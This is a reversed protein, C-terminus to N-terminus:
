TRGLLAETEQLILQAAEDLKQKRKRSNQLRLELEANRTEFHELQSHLRELPCRRNRIHVMIDNLYDENIVRQWRIQRRLQQEDPLLERHSRSLEQNSEKTGWHHAEVDQKWADELAEKFTDKRVPNQRPSLKGQTKELSDAHKDLIDIRGFRTTNSMQQALAVRKLRCRRWQKFSHRSIASCAAVAMSATGFMLTTPEVNAQTKQLYPVMRSLSQKRMSPMFVAGGTPIGHVVSDRVWIPASPQEM